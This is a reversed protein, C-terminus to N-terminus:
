DKVGLYTERSDLVLILYVTVLEVEAEERFSCNDLELEVGLEM